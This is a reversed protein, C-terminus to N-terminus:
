PTNEEWEGLLCPRALYSDGRGEKDLMTDEDIRLALSNKKEHLPKSGTHDRV